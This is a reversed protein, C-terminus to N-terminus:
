KKVKVKKGCNKKKFIKKYKKVKSKKVKVTKVSSGKLSNKVGSKTLKTTKKVNLTKLAKDAYFAYPGIKRLKKSTINFIKLKPCKEFSRADISVLGAGGTVSVLEPCGSFSNAAINVVNAGLVLQKMNKFNSPDATAVATVKYKTGNYVAVNPVVFREPVANLVMMYVTGNGDIKPDNVVYVYNGNDEFFYESFGLYKSVTPGPLKPCNSFVTNNQDDFLTKSLIVEELSSCGFFANDGLKRVSLPIDIKKLSRCNLFAKEGITVLGSIPIKVTALNDCGSFAGDGITIVSSPITVSTLADCGGFADTGIKKVTSPISVSILSTYSFVGTKIETVGKPITISTIGSECFASDDIRRVSKPLSITKLSTCAGFADRGIIKLGKPLSVSTLSQCLCFSAAGITTVGKSVVAKKIKSAYKFWPTTPKGTVVDFKYVYMSGKGTIKLTGNKDLTWKVKKGCKGSAIPKVADEAERQAEEELNRGEVLEAAEEDAHEEKQEQEPQQKDKEKPAPQEDKKKSSETETTETESTAETGDAIVAVPAMVMSVCMVASLLASTVKLGKM